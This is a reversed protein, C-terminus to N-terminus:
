MTSRFCVYEVVDNHEAQQIRRAEASEASAQRAAAEQAEFRTALSPSKGDRGRSGEQNRWSDSDPRQGNYPM